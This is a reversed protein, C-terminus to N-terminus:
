SPQPQSRIDTVLLFARAESAPERRAEEMQSIEEFM